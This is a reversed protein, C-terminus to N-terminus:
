LMVARGGLVLVEDRLLVRRHHGVGLLVVARHEASGGCGPVEAVPVHGVREVVEHGVQITVARRAADDDPLVVRVDAVGPEGLHRPSALDVDSLEHALPM